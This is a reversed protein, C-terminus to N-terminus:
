RPAVDLWRRVEEDFRRVVRAPNGHVVARAPVDDLVVAGEGIYANAGVHVGPGVISNMALYSGAGIRVAEPAPQHGGLPARRGSWSDIVSIGDSSLVDEEIVIEAASAVSAFRALVVRDGLVIRGGDRAVLSGEEMVVVASGIEIRDAGAVMTPPVVWSGAGFRAFASPPPPVRDAPVALATRRPHRHTRALERGRAVLHRM